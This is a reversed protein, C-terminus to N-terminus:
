IHTLFWSWSLKGKQILSCSKLTANLVGCLETRHREQWQSNLIKVELRHVEQALTREQQSSAETGHRQEPQGGRIGEQKTWDGEGETRHTSGERSMHNEEDRLDQSNLTPGLGM